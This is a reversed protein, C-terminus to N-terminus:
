PTWLDRIAAGLQVVALDALRDLSCDVVVGPARAVVGGAPASSLQAGPGAAREALRTIYRILQDYGPEAPLSAVAARVRSRLEDCAQRQAGLVASRASSRAARLAAGTVPAATAAAGATAADMAAAADRRAQEIIAAAEARAAARLRAAREEADRRLRARVPELAAEEPRATM